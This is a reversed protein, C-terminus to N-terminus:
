RQWAADRAGKQWYEAASDKIVFDMDTDQSWYAWHHGYARAFERVSNTSDAELDCLFVPFLNLRIPTDAVDWFQLRARLVEGGFQNVSVFEGDLGNWEPNAPQYPSLAHMSIKLDRTDVGHLRQSM